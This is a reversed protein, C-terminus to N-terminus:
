AETDLSASTVATPREGFPQPFCAFVGFTWVVNRAKQQRETCPEKRLLKMAPVRPAPM